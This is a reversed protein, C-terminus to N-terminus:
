AYSIFSPGPVTRESITIVCRGNFGRFIYDEGDGRTVLMMRRMLKLPRVLGDPITAM